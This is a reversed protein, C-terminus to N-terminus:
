TSVGKEDTRAGSAGNAGKAGKAVLIRRPRGGGPPAVAVLDALGADVLVAVAEAMDAATRLGLVRKAEDWGLEGDALMRRLVDAHRNGTSDGLAWTASRRAYDALAIAAQLHAVGVLPSRDAVAYVLALRAVQAEHRGTVAGALGLRPTRGLEAYFSEWCDRAAEDFTMEGPVRAEVIALHLPEIFQRVHEDPAIPFPVLRARRVALFVLRNAFGNATDTDTLKARLEGPTIHGLLTV